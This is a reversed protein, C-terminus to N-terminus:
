PFIYSSVHDTYMADSRGPSCPVEGAGWGERVDVPSRATALPPFSSLCFPLRARHVMLVTYLADTLLFLLTIM